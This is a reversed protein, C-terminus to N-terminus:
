ERSRPADNATPVAGDGRRAESEWLVVRDGYLPPPAVLPAKADEKRGRESEVQTLPDSTRRPSTPGQTRGACAAELMLVFALGACGRM